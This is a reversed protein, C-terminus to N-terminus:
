SQMIGIAGLELVVGAALVFHPLVLIAIPACGDMRLVPAIADRNCISSTSDEVERVTSSTHTDYALAM